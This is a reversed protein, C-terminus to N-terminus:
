GEKLIGVVYVTGVCPGRNPVGLERSSDAGRGMAPLSGGRSFYNGVFTNKWDETQGSCGGRGIVRGSPTAVVVKLIEM